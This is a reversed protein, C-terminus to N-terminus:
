VPEKRKEVLRFAGLSLEGGLAALRAPGFAARGPPEFHLPASEILNAALRGSASLPRVEGRWAGDWGGALVANLALSEANATATIEHAALTGSAGLEVREVRVGSLAIGDARLEAALERAGDSRSALPSSEGLRARADLADIALAGPLTLGHATATLEGGPEGLTGLLRADLM